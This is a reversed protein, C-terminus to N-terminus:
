MFINKISRPTQKHYLLINVKFGLAQSLKMWEEENGDGGVREIKGGRGRAISEEFIRERRGGHDMGRVGFLVLVLMRATAANCSTRIYFQVIAM